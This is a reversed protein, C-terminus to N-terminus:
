APPWTLWLSCATDSAEVRVTGGCARCTGVALAPGVLWVAPGGAVQMDPVPGATVTRFVPLLSGSGYVEMRGDPFLRVGAEDGPAYAKLFDYLGDLAPVLLQKDAMAPVPAEPTEARGNMRQRLLAGLEVRQPHVRFDGGLLRVWLGLQEVTRDLQAAEARALGLYRDVPSGDGGKISGGLMDLAMQLGHVSARLDHALARTLRLPESGMLAGDPHGIRQDLM